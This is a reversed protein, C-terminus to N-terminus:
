LDVERLRISEFPPMEEDLASDIMASLEDFTKLKVAIEDTTKDEHAPKELEVPTQLTGDLVTVIVRHRGRISMPSGILTFRGEDLYGEYAQLM